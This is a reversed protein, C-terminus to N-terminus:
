PLVDDLQSVAINSVAKTTTVTALWAGTALLSVMFVVEQAGTLKANFFLSVSASPVGKVMLTM